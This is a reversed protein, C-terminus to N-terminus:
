NVPKYTLIEPTDENAIVTVSQTIQPKLLQNHYSTEPITNNLFAPTYSFTYVGPALQDYKHSPTSTSSEDFVVSCSVPIAASQICLNLKNGYRNFKGSATNQGNNCGLQWMYNEDSYNIAFDAPDEIDTASILSPQDAGSSTFSYHASEHPKASTSDPYSFYFSCVYGSPIGTISFDENTDDKFNAQVNPNFTPPPPPPVDGGNVIGTYSGNIYSGVTAWFDEGNSPSDQGSLSVPYPDLCDAVGGHSGGPACGTILEDSLAYIAVGVNHDPNNLPTGIYHNLLLQSQSDAPKVTNALDFISKTYNSQQIRSSSTLTGATTFADIISPTTQNQDDDVRGDNHIVVLLDCMTPPTKSAADDFSMSCTPATSPSVPPSPMGTTNYFVYYKGFSTNDLGDLYTTVVKTIYTDQTSDNTQYNLGVYVPTYTNPVSPVTCPDPKTIDCGGSQNELRPTYVFEYNWATAAGEGPISLAYHGNYTENRQEFDLNNAGSKSNFRVANNYISNLMDYNCYSKILYNDPLKGNADPLTWHCSYDIATQSLPNLAPVGVYSAPYGPTPQAVQQTYTTYAGATYNGWYATSTTAFHKPTNADLIASSAVDYASPLFIGLPGQAQIIGGTDADAFAFIQNLKGERALLDAVAKYFAPASGSTPLPEVDFQVGDVLHSGPKLTYGAQPFVVEPNAAQLVAQALYAVQSLNGEAGASDGTSNPSAILNPTYGKLNGDFEMTVVFRFNPNTVQNKFYNAFCGIVPNTNADNSFINGSGAVSTDPWHKSVGDFQIWGIDPTVETIGVNRYTSFSTNIVDVYKNLPAFNLASGQSPLSCTSTATPATGGTLGYVAPAYVWASVEPEKILNVTGSGNSSTPIMLYITQYATPNTISAGSQSAVGNAQITVQVIIGGDTVAEPQTLATSITPNSLNVHLTNQSITFASTDAFAESPKGNHIIVPGWHTGQNAQSVPYAAPNDGDNRGALQDTNQVIQYGSITADSSSTFLSSINVTGDSALPTTLLTQSTPTKEYEAVIEDPSLAFVGSNVDITLKSAISGTAYDIWSNGTGPNPGCTPTPTTTISPDCSGAEGPELDTIKLSSDCACAYVEIKKGTAPTTLSATKLLTAAPQDEGVKELTFTGPLTSPSIPNGQANILNVYLKPYSKGVNPVKDDFMAGFDFEFPTYVIGAAETPYATITQNTTDTLIGDFFCKDFAAVQINGSQTFESPDLEFSADKKIFPQDLETGDSSYAPFSHWGQIDDPGAKGNVPYVVASDQIYPDHYWENGNITCYNQGPAKYVSFMMHQFLPGLGTAWQTLDINGNAPLPITQVGTGPNYDIKLDDSTLNSVIIHSPDAAYAVSSIFVSAAFLSMVSKLLTSKKLLNM